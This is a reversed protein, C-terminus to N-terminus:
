RWDRSWRRPSSRTPVALTHRRGPDHMADYLRAIMRACNRFAPQTSVDEVRRGRIWAERGDRLSELYEAGTFPVRAATDTMVAGLRTRAPHCGSRRVPFPHNTVNQRKGGQRIFIRM